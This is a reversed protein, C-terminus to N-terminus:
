WIRSVIGLVVRDTDFKISLHQTNAVTGITGALAIMQIHRQELGRRFDITILLCVPGELNSDVFRLDKKEDFEPPLDHLSAVEVDQYASTQHPELVKSDKEYDPTAM